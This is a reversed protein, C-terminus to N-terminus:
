IARIEVGLKEKFIAKMQKEEEKVIVFEEKFDEQTKVYGDILTQVNNIDAKLEDRVIYLEDQVNNIDSKLEDRVEELRNEAKDFRKDVKNFREDVKNFREDVKNFRGDIAGLIIKTQEAM